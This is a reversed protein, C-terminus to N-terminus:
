QGSTDPWRLRTYDDRARDRQYNLEEITDAALEILHRLRDMDPPVLGGRVAFRLEEPTVNKSNNM